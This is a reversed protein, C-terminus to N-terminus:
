RTKKLCLVNFYGKQINGDHLYPEWENFRDEEVRYTQRRVDDVIHTDFGLSAIHQLLEEPRQNAKRIIIPNFEMLVAVKETKTLLNTMGKLVHLEHGETDIKIVIPAGLTTKLLSDLTITAVKVTNVTTSIHDDYLSSHSSFDRLNFDRIEDRDSIASDFTAVNPANNLRLNEKLVQYNDPAPEFAM